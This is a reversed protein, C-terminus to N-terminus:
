YNILYGISNNVLVDSTYLLCVGFLGQFFRAPVVVMHECRSRITDGNVVFIRQAIFLTGQLDQTLDLFAIRQPAAKGLLGSFQPKLSLGFLSLLSFFFIHILSLDPITQQRLMVPLAGDCFESKWRLINLPQLCRQAMSKGANTRLRLTNDTTQRPSKPHALTQHAQQLSMPFSRVQPIIAFLRM